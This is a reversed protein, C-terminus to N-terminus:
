RRGLFQPDSWDWLREPHEDVDLPLSNWRYVARSSAGHVHLVLSLVALVVFTATLGRRAEPGKWQLARVVPVLFFVLYPVMDSFFRPGYSHGAWWHPFTSIAAWHLAVVAVLAAHLRSFTRARVDMWLGWASMLLVPTFVLLGRAPSVLNGALAEAVRAASLELRQPEYYPALVSGYHVLNVTVWPIAVALAGAFFRWAQRPHTWPVYLSLVLVSLSNTPRMVYALALAVGAWALHRPAERARILCLLVGTLCLLSPGHQWLARSATSLLPTCFVFVAALLLARQRSLHLATGLVFMVVGALATLASAFLRQPGNWADLDVSGTADYIHRWHALPKALSPHLTGVPTALRVFGDVLVVMPVAALSPGLPFYNYLHGDREYLGHRYSEFTPAYEDLDLNGERLLSLTTPLTLKSDFPTYVPFAALAAFFGVFLLVRGAWLRSTSRAPASAVPTSVASSSM